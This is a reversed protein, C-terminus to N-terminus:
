PKTLLVCRFGWGQFTREPSSELRHSARLWRYRIIEPSFFSGGRLVRTNESSPGQPNDTNGSQSYYKQDYWDNVWEFVNGAMDLAGYPSTGEPYSGVPATDSYGDDQNDDRYEYYVCHSDCYNSLEGTVPTNGWPYTRGDTGRAAKEWEAETPLRGGAWQCYTDAGFWNIDVVPHDEYGEDPVWREESQSIRVDVGLWTVEGESQNSAANLYTAFQANTVEHKYIWFDDLYVTHEPAEDAEASLDESGMLFEGAPVFVIEAGDVDNESLEIVIEGMAISTPKLTNTPKPTKTSTPEKTQTPSAEKTLLPEDTKTQTLSPMVLQTEEVSPGCAVILFTLLLIKLYARYKDM